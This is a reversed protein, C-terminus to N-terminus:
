RFTISIARAIVQNYIMGGDWYIRFYRDYPDNGRSIDLRFVYFEPYISPSTEIQYRIRSHELQPFWHGNKTIPLPEAPPRSYNWSDIIFDGDNTNSNVKDDASLQNSKPPTFSIVSENIFLIKNATGNLDPLIQQSERENYDLDRKMNPDIITNNLSLDTTKNVLYQLTTESYEQHVGQSLAEDSEKPNEAIDAVSNTGTTAVSNLTVFTASILIIM